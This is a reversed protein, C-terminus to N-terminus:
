NMAEKLVELNLSMRDLYSPGSILDASGASQMSDLTLIRVSQRKSASRIAEAVSGDSSELKLIASLDEENLKEALFVITEFSAETEASCGSFAAWCGIGYDAALYAFPYRDGFLMVPHKAASVASEYQADLENLRQIYDAANAAYRDANAPDLESLYSAIKGCFFSANKLSLWVHEDTEPESSKESGEQMGPLLEEERAADGLLELLSVVTQDPNVSNKLADDMWRDSEGGIYILLDCSSLTVIDGASPQFSHLDTGSDQLLVLSVSDTEGLIERTWDCIPYVTTVVTPKESGAGSVGSGAACGFPLLMLFSLLILLTKRM